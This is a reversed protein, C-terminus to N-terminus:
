AISTFFINICTFFDIFLILYKLFRDKNNNSNNNLRLAISNLLRLKYFANRNQLLRNFFFYRLHVFLILFINLYSFYRRSSYISYIKSNQIKSNLNQILFSWINNLLFCFHLYEWINKLLLFCQWIFKLDANNKTKSNSFGKLFIQKRNCSIELIYLKIFNPSFLWHNSFM